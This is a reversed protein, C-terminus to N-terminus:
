EKNIFKLKLIEKKIAIGLGERLGDDIVILPKKYPKILTKLLSIGVLLIDFRNKGILKDPDKSNLIKKTSKDFDELSIELGNILNADYNEYNMNLKLAAISTPVGSSLIIKDFDFDKIFESAFELEKIMLNELNLPLREKEKLRLLLNNFKVIGFAFSKFNDRFSIETSAGGLDIFLANKTNIGLNEGRYDLAFRTFKAEDLGSILEFKIKFEKYITDFFLSSNNALRFAETASAFYGQKSFDFNHKLEELGLRIRYMAEKSIGNDNMNRASGVTKEFSKTIQLNEDMQCARLTNSGLDILIM